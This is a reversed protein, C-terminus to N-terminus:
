KEHSLITRFVQQMQMVSDDLSGSNDVVFDARKRKSEISLQSAERRALEAATWGRNQQVRQQRLQLPTDVFVLWDCRTDWGGELLLAADLIVADIDRSASNIQSNIERRIAPHLIKNLQVLAAKQESSGGFVRKALQSRDVGGDSSFIEDGFCRRLDMQITSDFLLDHGIRDADVICFRFGTVHRVVSSKGSGIGGLIGVVPTKFNRTKNPSGSSLVFRLHDIGPLYFSIRSHSINERNRTIIPLYQGSGVIPPDFLNSPSDHNQFLPASSGAM